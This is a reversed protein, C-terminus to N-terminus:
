ADFHSYIKKFWYKPFLKEYNMNKKEVIELYKKELMEKDIEDWSNVILVPLDSYFTDYHSTLVIPITGCHIAEYVRHTDIGRGNCCVCFKYTHMNSIYEEFPKSETWKFGKRLLTNKCEIRQGTHKYFFPNTTTNAYNFYLLETKHALLNKEPEMCHKKFIRNNETQDEGMWRTTRWQSKLSLPLTQMKQHSISPNKLYWKLMKPSSIFTEIKLKKSEEIKITEKDMIEWNNSIPLCHDDNSCTILIYKFDIASLIDIYDYLLDTKVCIIPNQKDKNDKLAKLEQEYKYFNDGRKYKVDIVLDSMLYWTDVSIFEFYHTNASKKKEFLEDIKSTM